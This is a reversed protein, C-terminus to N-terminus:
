QENKNDGRNILRLIVRLSLVSVSALAVFAFVPFNSVILTQLFTIDM